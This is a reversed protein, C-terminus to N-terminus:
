AADRPTLPQGIVHVRILNTNGVINVPVGATLIVRDGTRLIGRNAAATITEEMMRDTTAVPGILVPQVGWTLALRRYTQESPTVAVLTMEPRYRAILRATSGSATACLIARAKLDRALEVAAQAVGDTVNIVRARTSPMLPRDALAGDAREAVRAMMRVAEVPYLGAATEGSLMVADTGDLIANAVDTVEARTPRPNQVMSELMQTATIVPQNHENCQRIVQKQVIPVEDIPIEVGLDGRAVMIGQVVKLLEDLRRVAELKEIKAIIPLEIGTEAMVARLPDLDSPGRVYSAAIWDVGQSLGFRLDAVDKETVAAIDLSVGPATVGKRSSLAGSGVSRVLLDTGSKEVIVLEVRGDDVLLRDGVKVASILAPVPLCIELDDGPVPRTTLTLRQGRKLHVQGCAITALRVKPGSLDQLIALPRDRQAALERLLRIVRGHQEHTGHSFNLRAVDMGARLMSTLVRSSSSAPGITCVIKTRRATSRM